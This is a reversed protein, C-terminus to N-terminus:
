IKSLDVKGLKIICTNIVNDSNCIVRFVISLLYLCISFLM